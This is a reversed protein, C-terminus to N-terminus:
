EEGGMLFFPYVISREDHTTKIVYDIEVVLTGDYIRESSIKVDKVTIRPEWYGLAEEVYHVLLAETSMNHLDFLLEHARCGFEPRMVREGPMTGLIIRISQEVDTAGSALNLQGSPSMQVPFAWGQGLYEKERNVYQNSM